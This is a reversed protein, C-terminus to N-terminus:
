NRYLGGPPTESFPMRAPNNLPPANPAVAGQQPPTDPIMKYSVARGMGRQLIWADATPEDPFTGFVQDSDENYVVWEGAPAPPASDELSPLILKALGAMEKADQADGDEITAILNGILEKADM